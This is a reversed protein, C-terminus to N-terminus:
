VYGLYLETPNGYALSSVPISEAMRLVNTM